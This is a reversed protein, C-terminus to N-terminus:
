DRRYPAESRCAGARSRGAHTAPSPRAKRQFPRFRYVPAHEAAEPGKLEGDSTVFSGNLTIATGLGIADALSIPTKSRNYTSRIRVAEDFVHSNIAVIVQIPLKPIKRLIEAAGEKGLPKTFVYHVEILNVVSMYVAATGVKAEKLIARIKDAGEEQKLLAILACADLIYTTM